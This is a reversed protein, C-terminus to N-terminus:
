KGAAQHQYAVLTQAAQKARLQAYPGDIGGKRSWERWTEDSKQQFNVAQRLYEQRRAPQRGAMWAYYAALSENSDALDRLLLADTPQEWLLTVTIELAKEYNALAEKEHGLAKHLDGLAAYSEQFERQFRRWEPSLAKLYNQREV